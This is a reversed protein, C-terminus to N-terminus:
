LSTCKACLRSESMQGWDCVTQYRDPICSYSTCNKGRVRSICFQASELLVARACIAEVSM